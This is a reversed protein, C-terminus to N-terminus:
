FLDALTIRNVTSVYVLDFSTRLLNPQDVSSSRRIKCVVDNTVFARPFFHGSVIFSINLIEEIIIIM